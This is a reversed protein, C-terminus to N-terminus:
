PFQQDGKTRAAVDREELDGATLVDDDSRDAVLKLL